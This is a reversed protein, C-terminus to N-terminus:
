ILNVDSDSAPCQIVLKSNGHLDLPEDNFIPTPTPDVIPIQDVEINIVKRHRRTVVIDTPCVTKIEDNLCPPNTSFFNRNKPNRIECPDPAVPKRDCDPKKRVKHPPMFGGEPFDNTM